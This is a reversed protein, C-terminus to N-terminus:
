PCTMGYDGSRGSLKAIGLLPDGLKQLEIHVLVASDPDAPTFTPLALAFLQFEFVNCPLHPGFYGDVSTDAFNANAQESGAPTAPMKTDKPVDAALMVADAPINWLVWHAQGFTADYLVLAFSQTGAPVDTWHLEPSVNANEMYSVNEDPIIACPSPDEFSCGPIGDFAPSTLPFTVGAGGGSGPDGGSGAGGGSDTPETGGSNSSGGAGGTSAGGSDAQGGVGPDAGGSAGGTSGLGGSGTPPGPVLGGPSCGYVLFLLGLVWGLTPKKMRM